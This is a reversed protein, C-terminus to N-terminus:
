SWFRLRQRGSPSALALSSRWYVVLHYLGLKTARVAGGGAVRWRSRRPPEAGDTTMVYTQPGRLTEAVRRVRASWTRACWLGMADTATPRRESPLSVVWAVPDLMALHIRSLTPLGSGRALDPPVDTRLLRQALRLSVALVLDLGADSAARAVYQWDLRPSRAVIRDIDVIRRLLGFADDENQSVVHLLLDESSPVRVPVTNGRDSISARAVVQKENLPVRSAPGTLAWHLEVIFGRPHTMVQHFHHLRYQDVWEEFDPAYGAERLAAISQDIEEPTVLLDLDGMSRETRDDYVRERLASGKLLIPTVGHRSLRHLVRDRELDWLLAERRLQDLRANLTGAVEAPLSDVVTTSKLANLTLGEVGLERALQLFSARTEARTLIANGDVLPGRVDTRQALVVLLDALLHLSHTSEM